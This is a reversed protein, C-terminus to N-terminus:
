FEARALGSENREYDTPESPIPMVTRGSVADVGSAFAVLGRELWRPDPVTDDDTFAVIDSGARRWGLNRAAAPGRRAHTDDVVIIEIEDSPLTQAELARVCRRLLDPRGCTPVVVSVIPMRPHPLNWERFSAQM